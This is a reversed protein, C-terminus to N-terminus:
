RNSERTKRIEAVGTQSEPNEVFVYSVFVVETPCCIRQVFDLRCVFSLRESSGIDKSVATMYREVKVLNHHAQTQLSVM